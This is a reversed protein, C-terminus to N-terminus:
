SLDKGPIVVKKGRKGPAKVAPRPKDAKPRETKGTQSTIKTQKGDDHDQANAASMSTLCFGVSMLVIIISLTNKM